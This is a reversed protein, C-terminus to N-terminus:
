FYDVLNARLTEDKAIIGVKSYYNGVRDKSGCKFM